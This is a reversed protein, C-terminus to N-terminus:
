SIKKWIYLIIATLNGIIFLLVLSVLRWWDTRAEARGNISDYKVKPKYQKEKIFKGDPVINKVQKQKPLNAHAKAKLMIEHRKQLQCSELHVRGRTVGCYECPQRKWHKLKIAM